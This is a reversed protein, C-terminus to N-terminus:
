KVIKIRPYSVYQRVGDELVVQFVAPPLESLHYTRLEGARDRLIVVYGDGDPSSSINEYVENIKLQNIGYDNAANGIGRHIGADYVKFVGFFMILVAAVILVVKLFLLSKSDYSGALTAVLLSFLLFALYPVINKM